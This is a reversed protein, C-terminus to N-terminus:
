KSRVKNIIKYLLYNLGVFMFVCVFGCMFYINFMLITASENLDFFYMKMGEYFLLFALGFLVSLLKNVFWNMGGGWLLVALFHFETFLLFVIIESIGM